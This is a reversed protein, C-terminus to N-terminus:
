LNWRLLWFPHSLRRERMCIWGGSVSWQHLHLLTLMPRTSAFFVPYSGGAHYTQEEKEQAKQNSGGVEHVLFFLAMVGQWRM